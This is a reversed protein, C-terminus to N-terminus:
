GRGRPRPRPRFRRRPFFRPVRRAYDDFEAGFRERLEREELVVTVCLAPISLATAVYSGVYNALFAYAATFLVVEVYRPHRIRGYIGDTVLRGPHRTSSLEPLGVQLGTTFHRRRLVTVVAGSAACVAAPVLLWAHSGLDRGLLSDRTVFAALMWAIVFPSLALYTWAAGLRRWLRALPHIAIWLLAAPPVAVLVFVGIVYRATSM